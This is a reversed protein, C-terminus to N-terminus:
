GQQAIALAQGIPLERGQELLRELLGAEIVSAAQAKTREADEAEFRDRTGGAATRVSEAAGLLTAARMAAGAAAATAAIGQLGLGIATMDAEREARQLGEIQLREADALEGRSLAIAGLAILSWAAPSGGIVRYFLASFQPGAAPSEATAQRFLSEADARGLRQATVALGHHVFSAFWPSVAADVM